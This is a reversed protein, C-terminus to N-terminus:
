VLQLVNILMDIVKIGVFPLLLGGLGYILLNRRLLNIASDPCYKVGRLALPILFVIILANFIVASLIASKPSGLHMINLVNLAPYTGAFAAPIIAFYKAVDNALSFTTLAGRTMLMQKGTQVVEILKTPNSDLDVMNAAEKAAQTGSNMAVAVDAQALAPADNTGDGTMAVLKGQRQYSRILELKQEPTAEAMFDDVGAEAAIAAATLPNDGTIMVTTIGIKRLEAFREKIGSKVVDKLEIVGLIQQGDAVLLPTSGRRAVEEVQQELNNPLTGGQETVWNVIADYAGKRIRRQEIDTGSMRTQATFEITEFPKSKWINEDIDFRSQALKVISRGEPTEDTLSSILAVEALLNENIGNSPLFLSAQRNGYTITGTKDLLLVDVDGAAEVARGSTAIVNAQMMRSMGAVGIASLLGGITTPILCVLLAVLIVIPIPEGQGSALVAFQSFPLLTVCVMLFILTLAILLITLAIENPTKTRKAGEVLAIMRDLFGQGPAQTIRIVLWDSLVKTGGTVANFDGGSERIVPASEGTIASEDVSALGEIVEGDAPIIEGMQVLVIDDQNLETAQVMTAASLRDSGALKRAQVDQRAQKLSSAQAKSRGEALAEAFNAFLLTFWLWFTILLTFVLGTQGQIVMNIALITTLWSGIYVVFMVPNRWQVRPDLKLLADKLAPKILTPDLLGQSPKEPLDSNDPEQQPPVDLDKNNADISVNM